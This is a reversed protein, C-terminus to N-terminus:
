QLNNHHVQLLPYRRTSRLWPRSDRQVASWTWSCSTGPRWETSRCTTRQRCMKKTQNPNFRKKEGYKRQLTEKNPTKGTITINFNDRGRHCHYYTSDKVILRYRNRDKHSSQEDWSCHEPDADPDPDTPYSGYTKPDGPDTLWWLYPDKGKRMFTNLPSFYHNSFLIKFKLKLDDFM